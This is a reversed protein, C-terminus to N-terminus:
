LKSLPPPPLRDGPAASLEALLRAVDQALAGVQLDVPAAFTGQSVKDLGKRLLGAAPRPRDQQLHHLGAAIQILGQVLIRELGDLERWADEWIEHAQFYQGRNFAARGRELRLRDSETLAAV